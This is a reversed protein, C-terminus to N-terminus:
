NLLGFVLNLALALITTNYAFALMAHVLVTRRIVASTIVVDSVQFCMGITFAFYAFDFDSPPSKGPFELGGVGEDDDRYFLRAYRLTYASHTLLWASAVATLCLAVAIGRAEPALQRAQQLVITGAFLSFASSLLVLIWVTTRGPDEASARRRTEAADAQGIIWWSLALLLASAADWGAIARVSWTWQDGLLDITLLGTAVAAVVRGPARRPDYWPFASQTHDTASTV